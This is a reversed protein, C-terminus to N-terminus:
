SARHIMQDGVVLANPIWCLSCSMRSPIAPVFLRFCSLIGPFGRVVLVVLLAAPRSLQLAAYSSLQLNSSSWLELVPSSSESQSASRSDDQTRKLRRSDRTGLRSDCM